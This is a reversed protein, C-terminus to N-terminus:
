SFECRVDCGLGEGPVQPLLSLYSQRIVTPPPFSFCLQVFLARVTLWFQTFFLTIAYLQRHRTSFGLQKLVTEPLICPHPFLSQRHVTQSNWRRKQAGWRIGSTAKSRSCSMLSPLSMMSPFSCFTGFDLWTRLHPDPCPVPTRLCFLMALFFTASIVM